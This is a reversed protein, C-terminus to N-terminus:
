PQEPDFDGHFVVSVSRSESFRSPTCALVLSTQNVDGDSGPDTAADNQISLKIATDLVRMRFDPVVHNINGAWGAQASKVAAPFRESGPRSHSPPHLSLRRRVIAM